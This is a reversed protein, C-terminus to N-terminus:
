TNLSIPGKAMPWMSIADSLRDMASTLKRIIVQRDYILYVCFIGLAGYQMLAEEIM